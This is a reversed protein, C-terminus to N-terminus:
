YKKLFESYEKIFLLGAGMEDYLSDGDNDEGKQFM